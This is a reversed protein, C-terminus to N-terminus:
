VYAEAVEFIATIVGIDSVHFYERDGGLRIVTLLGAEHLSYWIDEAVFEVRRLTATEKSAFVIRWGEEATVPEHEVSELLALIEYSTATDWIRHHMATGIAERPTIGGPTIRIDMRTLPRRTVQVIEWPRSEDMDLRWRFVMTGDESWIEFPESAAFSDAYVTIGGFLLVAVFLVAVIAFKKM